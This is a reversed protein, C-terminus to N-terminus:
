EFAEDTRTASLEAIDLQAELQHFADDGITGQSRLDFLTQRQAEIVRARLNDHPPKPHIARGQEADDLM